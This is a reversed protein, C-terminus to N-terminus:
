EYDDEMIAHIVKMMENYDKYLEELYEKGQKELHYYVRTKRKGILEKKSSIYRNDELKYLIPYLTGEQIVIKEKSKIKIFQTIEYGYRDKGSLVKLILMEMKFFSNSKSM